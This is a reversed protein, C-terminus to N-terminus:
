CPFNRLWLVAEEKFSKCVWVGFGLPNIYNQCLVQFSFSHFPAIRLGDAALADGLIDQGGCEWCSCHQLRLCSQATVVRLNWLAARPWTKWFQPVVQAGPSSIWGAPVVPLLAPVSFLAPFAASIRRFKVASWFFGSWRLEDNEKVSALQFRVTRPGWGGPPLATFHFGATPM